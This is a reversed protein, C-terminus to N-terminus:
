VSTDGAYLEPLDHVTAYYTIKGPDLGLKEGLAMGVLTLSYSHEADNEARGESYPWPIAREIEAFPVYASHVLHTVDELLLKEQM